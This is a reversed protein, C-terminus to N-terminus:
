KEFDIVFNYLQYYENSFDIYKDLALRYLIFSKPYKRENDIDYNCNTIVKKYYEDDVMWNLAQKDAKDECKEGDYSVLSTAKAKNFDSKCHALEHLLAFYIDAIRKYKHTLYISPTDKNVKFAGRIKSGPLDTQIVLQIGNENFKEILDNENFKGEKANDIIFKVLIDINENDYKDVKQGSAIRFCRELWVMLMEPKDNKSKYLINKDLKYLSEPNTVRLYKLIDMMSTMKNDVHIFRIWDNKILERYSFKNLYQTLTINNKSLFQEIECEMRYNEELKLIYEVPINTVISISHIVSASLEVNGSLIDILHKPTIGIRTSFEKNSINHESLYDKLIEIFRIHTM